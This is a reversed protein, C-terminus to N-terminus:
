RAELLGAVTRGLTAAAVPGEIAIVQDHVWRADEPPVIEAVLSAFYRLFGFHPGEPGYGLEAYEAFRENLQAIFAREVEGATRQGLLDAENEALHGAAHRALATAFEQREDDQLRPWAVRCACQIGFAVAEALFQFYAPGADIAFRARRLNELMARALRFATFAVASAVEGPSRARDGRHWRTRARM